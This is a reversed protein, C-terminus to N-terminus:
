GYLPALPDDDFNNCHIAFHFWTNVDFTIFIRPITTSVNGEFGFINTASSSCNYEDFIDLAITCFLGVYLLLM